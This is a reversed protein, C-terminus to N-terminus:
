AGNESLRKYFAKRSIGLMRAAKSKNGNCGLIAEKVAEREIDKLTILSSHIMRQKKLALFEEPLEKCTIKRERCLVVAREIVNRLQRINGPWQYNLFVSMAQDSLKVTKKERACFENVFDSVLLPMDDKRERLPPVRIEVVNIRYFLDERFNGSSVEKTLDRNTSCLLRFEVKIKKNSGLREIEREQLVRLLKAQLSLDMEGIEDLFITGGSAEEFKGIRRGMAGTFAGKEYGFLESEMLEKPIAACNVTVFPAERKNSRYHLARAVVEKGTGTEGSIFVSSTSDKVAEITELIKRMEPTNGIIRCRGNGESLRRKLSEIEKKMCRQEVARALISKLKLYDPPKIFYYFAGLSIASVASEVTGYATLFIVPVDPHNGSLYEFFQMGDRGPMKLDTIVTDIDNKSMMGIAKDVDTSEFVRYNEETLIASLVKIANPEDDVILINGRKTSLSHQNGGAQTDRM